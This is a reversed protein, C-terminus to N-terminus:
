TGKEQCVPSCYQGDIMRDAPSYTECVRCKRLATSANAPAGPGAANGNAASESKEANMMQGMERTIMGILGRIFAAVIVAILVGILGRIM